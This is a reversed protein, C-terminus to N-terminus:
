GEWEWTGNQHLIMYQPAVCKTVNVPENNAVWTGGTRITIDCSERNDVLLTTLSYLTGLALLSWFTARVITRITYYIPPHTTYNNM